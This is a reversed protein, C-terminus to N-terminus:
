NRGLRKIPDNANNQADIYPDFLTPGTAVGMENAMGLSAKVGDIMDWFSFNAMPDNEAARRAHLAGLTSGETEGSGSMSKAYDFVRELMGKQPAKQSKSSTSVFKAGQSPAEPPATVYAAVVVVM